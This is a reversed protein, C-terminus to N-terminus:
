KKEYKELFYFKANINFNVQSASPSASSSQSKPVSFGFTDITLPRRSKSLQDITQLFLMFDGQSSTNIKFNDTDSGKESDINFNIKNFTVSNKEASKQLLLSAHSFSPRFPICSQIISYNDQIKAFNDQAQVINKIKKEMEAALMKKSKITGMLESIKSFTPKIAFFAFAAIVFLTFGIESLRRSKKNEQERSVYEILKETKLISLPNKM